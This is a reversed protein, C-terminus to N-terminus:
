SSIAPLHYVTSITNYREISYKTLFIVKKRINRVCYIGSKKTASCEPKRRFVSKLIEGRKTEVIIHALVSAPNETHYPWVKDRSLV